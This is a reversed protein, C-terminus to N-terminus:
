HGGGLDPEGELGRVEVGWEEGGRAWDRLQLEVVGEDDVVDHVVVVAGEAPDDAAPDLEADVVHQVLPPRHEVM